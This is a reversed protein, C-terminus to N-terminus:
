DISPVCSGLSNKLVEYNCYNALNVLLIYALTYSIWANTVPFTIHITIFETATVKEFGDDHYKIKEYIFFLVIVLLYHTTALKGKLLVFGILVLFLLTTGQVKQVTSAGTNVFSFTFIIM